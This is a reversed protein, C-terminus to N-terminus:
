KEPQRDKWLTKKFWERSFLLSPAVSESSVVLDDLSGNWKNSSYKTEPQLIADKQISHKSFNTEIPPVPTIDDPLKVIKFNSNTVVPRKFKAQALRVYHLRKGSLDQFEPLDQLSDDQQLDSKKGLLGSWLGCYASALSLQESDMKSEDVLSDTFSAESLENLDATRKHVRISKSASLKSRQYDQEMSSILLLIRTWLEYTARAEISKLAELALTSQETFLIPYLAFLIELIFNESLGTLRNTKLKRKVGSNVSCDTNAIHMDEQVGDVKAPSFQDPVLQGVTSSDAAENEEISQLKPSNMNNANREYDVSGLEADQSTGKDICNDGFPNFLCALKCLSVKSQKSLGSLCYANYEKMLTTLIHMRNHSNFTNDNLGIKINLMEAINDPQKIKTYKNTPKTTNNTPLLNDPKYNDNKYLLADGYISPNSLIITEFNDRLNEEDIFRRQNRRYIHYITLLYVEFINILDTQENTYHEVLHKKSQHQIHQYENRARQILIKHVDSFKIKTGLKPSLNYSFQQDSKHNIPSKTQSEQTNTQSKTVEFNEEDQKPSNPQSKDYGFM